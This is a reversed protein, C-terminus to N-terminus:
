LSRTNTFANIEIAAQIRTAHLSTEGGVSLEDSDSGEGEEDGTMTSKAVTTLHILSCSKLSENAM